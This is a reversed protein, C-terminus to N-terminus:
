NRMLHKLDKLIDEQKKELDRIKYELKDIFTTEPDTESSVEPQVSRDLAPKPDIKPAPEDEPEPPSPELEQSLKLTPKTSSNQLPVPKPDMKSTPKPAEFGLVAFGYAPIHIRVTRNNVTATYPVIAVKEDEENTDFPDDSELVLYSDPLPHGDDPFTLDVEMATENESVIATAWVEQRKFAASTIKKSAIDTSLTDFRYLDGGIVRNLMTMALGTPRMYPPTDFNRTVGWLKVVGKGNYTRTQFQSLNFVMIPDIQAEMCNILRKALAVGSVRGAVVREREEDPADGESTHLNVEYVLLDKGKQRIYESIQTLYADDAFLQTLAEKDSLGANLSFLFYPAIAVGDSLQSNDAYRFTLHPNAYQGNIVYKANVADGASLKVLEFARDSASGHEEPYPIGLPHYVWNWNENGFEIIVQPFRTTNAHRALFHGLQRNEKDTFPTPIVIWPNAGVTQCLTLFDNLSYSWTKGESGSVRITFAKRSEPHSVRNEYSDGLHFLERIFSPRIERLTDVVTKRFFSPTEQVVGLYMDDVWVTTGAKPANFYFQLTAGDGTDQATFELTYEKWETTLIFTENFYHPTGNIRRFFMNLPVGNANAKAWFSCKWDGDVRLAKGALHADHDIFSSVEAKASKTPSLRLSQSGRSGPRTTERDIQAAAANAVWWNDVPNPSESKKLAIITRNELLPLPTDTTYQPFNGQGSRISQTIKGEMGVHRGTRIEYTGNNWFGDPFGRNTEDSFNQTDSQTTIVIHRDIHGEFGPNMLINNAFQATGYQTWSGLNIGLRSLNKGLPEPIIKLTIDASQSTEKPQASLQVPLVASILALATLPIRWQKIMSNETM